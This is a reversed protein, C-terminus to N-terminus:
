TTLEADGIRREARVLGRGRLCLGRPLSESPESEALIRGSGGREVCSDGSREPSLLERHAEELAGPRVPSMGAVSPRIASRSHLLGAQHQVRTMRLASEARQSLDQGQELTPRRAAIRTEAAREHRLRMQLQIARAGRATESKTCPAVHSIM